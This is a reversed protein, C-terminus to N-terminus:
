RLCLSDFSLLFKETAISLLILIYMISIGESDAAPQELLADFADFNLKKKALNATKARKLIGALSAASVVSSAKSSPAGARQNGGSTSPTAQAEVETGATESPGSKKKQKQGM